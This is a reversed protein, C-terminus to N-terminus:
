PYYGGPQYNRGPNTFGNGGNWPVQQPRKIGGFLVNKVTRTIAPAAYPLAAGGVDFAFNLLRNGISNNDKPKATGGTSQDFSESVKPKNRQLSDYMDTALRYRSLQDQYGAAAKSRAYESAQRAGQAQLQALYTAGFTSNDMGNHALEAKADAVQPAVTSQMFSAAEANQDVGPAQPLLALIQQLQSYDNAPPTPLWIPMQGM